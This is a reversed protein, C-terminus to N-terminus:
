LTKREKFENYNMEFEEWGGDKTLVIIPFCRSTIEGAKNVVVAPQYVDNYLTATESNTVLYAMDFIDKAIVRSKENLEFNKM